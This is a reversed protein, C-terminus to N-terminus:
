NWSAPAQREALLRLLDADSIEKCTIALSKVGALIAALGDEDLGQDLGLNRLRARLACLGSHKGLIIGPEPAGITQPQMIEYTMRDRLIGQQHIGAVHVFANGGVIPKNGPLGVGSLASILQSTPYLEALRINTYRRYYDQRVEIAM